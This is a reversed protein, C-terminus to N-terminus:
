VTIFNLTFWSFFRDAHRFTNSTNILVEYEFHNKFCVFAFTSSLKKKQETRDHCEQKYVM